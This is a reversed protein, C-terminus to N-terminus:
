SLLILDILDQFNSQFPLCLTENTIFSIARTNGRKIIESGKCTNINKLFDYLSIDFLETDAYIEQLLNFHKGKDEAHREKCFQKFNIGYTLATLSM